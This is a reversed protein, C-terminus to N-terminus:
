DILFIALTPCVEFAYLIDEVGWYNPDHYYRYYGDDDTQYVWWWATGDEHPQFTDYCQYEWCYGCGVCYNKYEIAATLWSTTVITVFSLSSILTLLLFFKKM